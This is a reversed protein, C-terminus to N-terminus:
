QLGVMDVLMASDVCADSVDNVEIRVTYNGTAFLIPGSNRAIWGTQSGDQGRGNNIMNPLGTVPMFTSSNVSEFLGFQVTGDSHSLTVIANDNFHAGSGGTLYNVETTIFNYLVSFTMEKAVNVNFTQQISGQVGADWTGTHMVAFKGDASLADPVVSGFSSFGGYANKATWYNLDTGFEGNKIMAPGGGGGSGGLGGKPMDRPLIELGDIPRSRWARAIASIMMGVNQKLVGGGEIEEPKAVIDVATGGVAAEETLLVDESAILSDL